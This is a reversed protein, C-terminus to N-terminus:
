NAGLNDFIQNRHVKGVSYENRNLQCPLFQFIEFAICSLTSYEMGNNKGGNRIILNIM